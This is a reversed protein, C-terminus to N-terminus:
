NNHAIFHEFASLCTSALRNEKVCRTNEIPRWLIIMTGTGCSGCKSDRHRHWFWWGPSASILNGGQWPSSSGNYALQRCSNWFSNMGSHYFKPHTSHSCWMNYQNYNEEQQFACSYTKCPLMLYNNRKRQVSTNDTETYYYRFGNNSIHWEITTGPIYVATWLFWGCIRVIKEWASHVNGFLVTAIPLKELGHAENVTEVLIAFAHNFVTFGWHSGCIPVVKSQKGQQLTSKSFKSYSLALNGPFTVWM